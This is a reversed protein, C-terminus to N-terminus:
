PNFGHFFPLVSLKTIKSILITMSVGNVPVMPFVLNTSRQENRKNERRKASARGFHLGEVAPREYEYCSRGDLPRTDIGRERSDAQFKCFDATIERRVRDLRGWDDGIWPSGVEVRKLDRPPCGGRYSCRALAELKGGVNQIWPVAGPGRNLACDAQSVAGVSLM